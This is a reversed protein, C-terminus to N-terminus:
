DGKEVDMKWNLYVDYPEGKFHKGEIWSIFYKYAKESLVLSIEMPEYTLIFGKFVNRNPKLRFPAYSQGTFITECMNQLEEDNLQCSQIFEEFSTTRM